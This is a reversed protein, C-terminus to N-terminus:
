VNFSELHGSRHLAFNTSHATLRSSPSLLARQLFPGPGVGDEGLRVTDVRVRMTTERDRRMITNYMLSGHWPSTLSIFITRTHTHSDIWEFLPWWIFIFGLLPPSVGSKKRYGRDYLNASDRSDQVM